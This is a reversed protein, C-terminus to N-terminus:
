AKTIWQRHGPRVTRGGDCAQGVSEKVLLRPCGPLGAEADQLQPLGEGLTGPPPVTLALHGQQESVEDPEGRPSQADAVLLCQLEQALHRGGHLRRHQSPTSPHDLAEAIAHHRHEGRRLQGEVGRHSGTLPQCLHRGVPIAQPQARAHVGPARARDTAVVEPDVDVHRRPQHLLRGGVLDQHGFTGQGPQVAVADRQPGLLRKPPRFHLSHRFVELHVHRLRAPSGHRLRAPSGHRLRATPPSLYVVTAPLPHLSQPTGRPRTPVPYLYPRGMIRVIITDSLTTIAVSGIVPEHNGNGPDRSASCGTLGGTRRRLADRYPAPSAAGGKPPSCPSGRSWFSCGPCPARSGRSRVSTARTQWRLWYRTAAPAACAAPWGTHRWPRRGSRTRPALRVIRQGLSAGGGFLPVAVFLVLVPLWFALLTPISAFGAAEDPPERTFTYVALVYAANLAFGIVYFLLLDCVMGLLRRFVTVPRPTAGALASEAPQGPVLRLVPAIIAGVLAGVSNALLDDVDFLRYACPYLFWDGTLQTCEVIISVGLGLATATIVRRRFLHRALMGLPVFLLVNFSVQLLATNRLLERACGGDIGARIDQVFQLPRLQVGAGGRACFGPTIQPLPLVVYGILALAYVLAAFSLAAHGVGVEGRRHYQRAVYPVFLLFALAVGGIGAVVAPLIPSHV